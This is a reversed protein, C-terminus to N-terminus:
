LDENPVILIIKLKKLVNLVGPFLKLGNHTVGYLDLFFSDYIHQIESFNKKILIKSM